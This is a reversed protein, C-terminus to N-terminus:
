HHSFTILRFVTQSGNQVCPMEMRLRAWHLLSKSTVQLKVLLRAVYCKAIHWLTFVAIAICVPIQLNSVVGRMDVYKTANIHPCNCHISPLLLDPTCTPMNSSLWLEGSMMAQIKEKNDYGTCNIEVLIIERIM